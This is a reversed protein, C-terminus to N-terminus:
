GLAVLLILLLALFGILVIWTTWFAVRAGLAVMAFTPTPTSPPPAAAPPPGTMPNVAVLRRSVAFAFLAHLADEVADSRSASLGARRLDDLLATVHRPRIDRVPMTGLEADIHWLAARLERDVGADSLFEAIVSGLTVDGAPPSLPRSHAPRQTPDM